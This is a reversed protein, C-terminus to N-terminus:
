WKSYVLVWQISGGPVEWLHASTNFKNDEGVGSHGGETLHSWKEGFDNLNLEQFATTSESRGVMGM